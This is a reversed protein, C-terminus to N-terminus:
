GLLGPLANFLANTFRVVQSLMWGGAILLAAYVAILKPVFTLTQEQIQTAAQFISILLGVLLSLLVPPASVLLIILLTQRTVMLILHENM